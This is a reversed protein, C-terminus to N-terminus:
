IYICNYHFVIFRLKTKGKLTVDFITIVVTNENINHLGTGFAIQKLNLSIEFFEDNEEKNDILATFVQCDRSNAAFIEGAM